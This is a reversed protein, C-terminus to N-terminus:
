QESTGLLCYGLGGNWYAKFGMEKKMSLLGAIKGGVYPLSTIPEAALPINDKWVM